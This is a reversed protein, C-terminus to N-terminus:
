HKKAYWFAAALGALSMANLRITLALTYQIVGLDAAPHWVRTVFTGMYPIHFQTLLDGVLSGVLLGILLTFFIRSFSQGTRKM